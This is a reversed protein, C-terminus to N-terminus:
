SMKELNEIPKLKLNETKRKNLYGDIYDWLIIDESLYELFRKSSLSAALCIENHNISGFLNEKKIKMAEDYIFRIFKSELDRYFLSKEDKLLEKVLEQEM